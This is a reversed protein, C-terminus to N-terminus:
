IFFMPKNINNTSENSIVNQSEKINIPNTKNYNNRKKTNSKTENKFSKTLLIMSKVNDYMPKAQKVLPITQNVVNLTKNVGNLMGKWNFNKLRNFLNSINFAPSLNNAYLMSNRGMQPIFYRYPNM